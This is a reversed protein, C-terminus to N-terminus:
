TNFQNYLFVLFLFRTLVGLFVDNSYAYFYEYRLTGYAFLSSGCGEKLQFIQVCNNKTHKDDFDTIKHTNTMSIYIQVCTILNQTPPPARLVKETPPHDSSFLGGGGGLFYPIQGGKYLSACLMRIHCKMYLDMQSEFVHKM